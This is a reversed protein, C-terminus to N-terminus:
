LEAVHDTPIERHVLEEVDTVRLLALADCDTSNCRVVFWRHYAHPHSRGIADRRLTEATLFWPTTWDGREVAAIALCNALHPRKVIVKM